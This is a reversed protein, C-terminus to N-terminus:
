SAVKYAADAALPIRVRFCAGSPSCNNFEITGNHAEIITKSISLGMGMGGEKTSNFSKFLGPLQDHPIGPGTDQVELYAFGDGALGTSILIKKSETGDMAEVANRLLNHIVQQIQVRDIHVPIAGRDIRDVIETCVVLNGLLTITMAERLVDNLNEPKIEHPRKEIFDRLGRIIEGARISQGAAKDIAERASADAASMDTKAELYRRAANAYNAIAMLPQNLEHAIAASMQGLASVRAVHTLETNLNSLTAEYEKKETIDRLCSIWGKPGGSADRLVTSNNELWVIKGNKHRVRYQTPGPRHIIEGRIFAQTDNQLWGKDEEQVIWMCDKGVIEDIGYGLIRESSPSAYVIKGDNDFQAIIDSANEALLRYRGESERLQLNTRAEKALAGESEKLLKRRESIAAAAPLSVLAVVGFSVQFYLLQWGTTLPVFLPPGHGIVIATTYIADILLLCAAVIEIEFVLSVLLITLTILGFLPFLASRFTLALVSFLGILFAALQYRRKFAARYDLQYAIASAPTIVICALVNSLTWVMWSALFSSGSPTWHELGFLIGTVICVAASIVLFALLERWNRFDIKPGVFRNIAVYIVLITVVIDASTLMSTWYPNAFYVCKIIVSSTFEAILVYFLSGNGYLLCMALAIGLHVRIAILHEARLYVFSSFWNAISFVLFMVVFGLPENPYLHKKSIWSIAM